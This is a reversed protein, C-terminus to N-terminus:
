VTRKTTRAQILCEHSNCTSEHIVIFLSGPFLGSFELRLAQCLFTGYHVLNPIALIVFQAAIQNKELQKDKAVELGSRGTLVSDFEFM